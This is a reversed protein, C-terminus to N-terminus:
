RGAEPTLAISVLRRADEGYGAGVLYLRDGDVAVGTVIGLDAPVDVGGRVEARSPSLADVVDLRVAFTVGDLRPSEDYMLYDSRYRALPAGSRGLSLELVPAMRAGSRVYLQSGEATVLGADAATLGVLGDIADTVLVPPTDMRYLRDAYGVYVAGDFWALARAGRAPLPTSALVAGSTAELEVLRDDLRDTTWVHDGSVALGRPEVVDGLPVRTVAGVRPGVPVAADPAADVAADAVEDVKALYEDATQPCGTTTWLALLALWRARVV